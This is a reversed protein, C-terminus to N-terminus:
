ITTFWILLMVFRWPKSFGTLGLWDHVMYWLAEFYSCIWSYINSQNWSEAGVWVYNPIWLFLVEGFYIIMRQFNIELFSGLLSLCRWLSWSAGFSAQFRQVHLFMRLLLCLIHAAFLTDKLLHWLEFDDITWLLRYLWLCFYCGVSRSKSRRGLWGDGGGFLFKISM